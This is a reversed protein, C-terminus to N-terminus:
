RKKCGVNRIFYRAVTQIVSTQNGAPVSPNKEESDRLSRTYQGSVLARHPQDPRFRVQFKARKCLGDLLSQV